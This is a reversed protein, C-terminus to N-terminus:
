WGIDYIRILILLTKYLVILIGKVGIGIMFFVFNFVTQRNLYFSLGSEVIFALITNTSCFIRNEAYILFYIVVPIIRTM